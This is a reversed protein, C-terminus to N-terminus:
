GESDDNDFLSRCALVLGVVLMLITELIAM